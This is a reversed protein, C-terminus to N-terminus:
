KLHKRVAEVPIDYYAAFEEATLLHHDSKRYAARVVRYYRYAQRISVNLILAIDQPYIVLRHPTTNM